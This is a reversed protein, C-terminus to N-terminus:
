LNLEQLSQRFMKQIKIYSQQIKCISLTSAFSNELLFFDKKALYDQVNYSVQFIIFITVILFYYLTLYM